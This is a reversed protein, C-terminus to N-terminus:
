RGLKSEECVDGVDADDVAVDRGAEEAVGCCTMRTGRSSGGTRGDKDIKVELPVVGEATQKWFSIM